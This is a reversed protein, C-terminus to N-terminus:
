LGNQVVLVWFTCDLHSRLQRTAELVLEDSEELFMIVDKSPRTFVHWPNIRGDNGVYEIDIWSVFRNDLFAASEIGLVICCNIFLDFLQEYSVKDSFDM